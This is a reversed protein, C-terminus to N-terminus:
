ARDIAFPLVQEISSAGLKAMLLRDFGLAVGSCQPLGHTLAAILRPDAHAVPKGLQLRRQQDQTFRQAQQAADTLEQYGNALEYGGYFVEFRLAVRDDSPDLQALAAQSAPYHTVILPQQPDMAPEVICAMALDLLIDRDTEQLALERISPYASLSQQLCEVADDALPDVTLTERLLQQYTIQRPLPAAVGVRLLEVVEDILQQMTFGVRYWELMTFEPNHRPGQEDDRFVKGLQYICGSGAALLRKMAYEPSTQLHLPVVDHRLSSTLNSLHPDTVGFHALVPTDVEMVGREAFFSRLKAFLAARERLVEITASPQWTSDRQM